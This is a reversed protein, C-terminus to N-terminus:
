RLYSEVWLQLTVDCREPNTLNPRLESRYREELTKRNIVGKEVLFAFDREDIPHNRGLKSLALDHAELARLRLNRHRGPLLDILRVEYNEPVEAVTVIQLYVRHKEHLPSGRGAIEELLTSASNPIVALSDLDATLIPREYLVLLVFGGFCHLEVPFELTGDLETLFGEWPAPLPSHARTEASM